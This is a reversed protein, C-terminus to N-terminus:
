ASLHIRRADCVQRLDEARQAPVHDAEEAGDHVLTIARLAALTPAGGALEHVLWASDAEAPHSLRLARLRGDPPLEALVDALAIRPLMRLALERAHACHRLFQSKVVVYPAREARRVHAGASLM